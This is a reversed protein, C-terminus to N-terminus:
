AGSWRASYIRTTWIRTGQPTECVQVRIRIAVFATLRDSRGASVCAGVRAGRAPLDFAGSYWSYITEIRGQTLVTSYLSLAPAPTMALTTQRQTVTGHPHNAASHLALILSGVAFWVLLTIGGIVRVARGAVGAWWSRLSFRRPADTWVM